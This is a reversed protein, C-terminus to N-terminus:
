DLPKISIIYRSNIWLEKGTEAIFYVMTSGGNNMAYWNVRQPESGWRSIRLGLTDLQDKIVIRMVENGAQYSLEYKNKM